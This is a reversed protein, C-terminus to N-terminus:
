RSFGPWIATTVQSCVSLIFLDMEQGDARTSDTDPQHNTQREVAHMNTHSILLIIFTDDQYFGLVAM